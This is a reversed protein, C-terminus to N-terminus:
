NNKALACVVVDPLCQGGTIAEDRGSERTNGLVDESM